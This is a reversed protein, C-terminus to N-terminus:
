KKKKGGGKKKGKKEATPNPNAPFGGPLPLLKFCEEYPRDDPRIIAREIEKRPVHFQDGKKTKVRGLCERIRDVLRMQEMQALSPVNEEDRLVPLLQEILPIDSRPIRPAPKMDASNTVDLTINLASTGTISRPETPRLRGMSFHPSSSEPAKVRSLLAQLKKEDMATPQYADYPSLSIESGHYAVRNLLQLTEERPLNGSPMQSRETIKESPGGSASPDQPVRRLITHCTRGAQSGHEESEMRRTSEEEIRAQNFALTTLVDSMEREDNEEEVRQLMRKVWHRQSAVVAADLKAINPDRDSTRVTHLLPSPGSVAVRSTQGTTAPRGDANNGTRARDRSYVVRPENGTAGAGAASTAGKRAIEQRLKEAKALNRKRFLGMKKSIAHTDQERVAEEMFSLAPPAKVSPQERGFDAPLASLGIGTMFAVGPKQPSIPSSKGDLPTTARNDQATSDTATAPPSSPADWSAPTPSWSRRKRPESKIGALEDARKLSFDLIQMQKDKYWQWIAEIQIKRAAYASIAVTERLLTKLLGALLATLKKDVEGRVVYEPSLYRETHQLLEMFHDDNTLSANHAIQQRLNYTRDAFANLNTATGAQVAKLKEDFKGDADNILREMAELSSAM